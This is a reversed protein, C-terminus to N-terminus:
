LRVQTLRPSLISFGNPGTAGRSGETTEGCYMCHCVSIRDRVGCTDYLLYNSQTAFGSIAIDECHASYGL